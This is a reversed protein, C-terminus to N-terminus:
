QCCPEPPPVEERICTGVEDNQFQKLCRERPQCNVESVCGRRCNDFKPDSCYTGPQCVVDGCSVFGPETEEDLILCGTLMSCMLACLLAFMSLRLSM